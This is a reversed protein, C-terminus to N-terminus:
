TAKKFPRDCKENETIITLRGQQGSPIYFQHRCSVSVTWLSSLEPKYDRIISAKEPLQIFPCAQFKTPRSAGACRKTQFRPSGM